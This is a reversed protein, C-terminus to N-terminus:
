WGNVMSNDVGSNPLVLLAILAFLIIIVWSWVFIKVFIRRVPQADDYTFLWKLGIFWLLIRILNGM